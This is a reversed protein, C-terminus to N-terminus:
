LITHAIFELGLRLTATRRVGQYSAVSAAQRSQRNSWREKWDQFTTILNFNALVLSLM